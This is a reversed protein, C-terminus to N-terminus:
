CATGSAYGETPPRCVMRTIGIPILAAVLALAVRGGAELFRSWREWWTVPDPDGALMASVQAPPNLLQLVTTTMELCLFIPVGIMVLTVRERRSRTPWAILLAWFVVPSEAIASADLKGDFWAAPVPDNMRESVTGRMRLIASLGSNGRTVSLDGIQWPHSRAVWRAAVAYYPLALRAYSEAGLTGSVIAVTAVLAWRV